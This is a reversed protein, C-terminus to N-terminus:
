RCFCFIFIRNKKAEDQLFTIKEEFPIKDDLLITDRSLAEIYRIDTDLKAEIYDANVEIMNKLDNHADEILRESVINTSIIGLIGTIIFTIVTFTTVLKTKLTKM